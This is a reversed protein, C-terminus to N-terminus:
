APDKRQDSKVWVDMQPFAITINNERFKQDIEFRLDSKLVEVRFLSKTPFYLSFILASDGFNEFLVRPPPTSEVEPHNAAVELLVKEALRTDSGYAIGVELGNRAQSSNQTWNIVYDSTLLHNPITMVTDRRTIITTTRWGVKQVMGITGGLDVIDDTTITRDWLIIVGSVFDKFVDQLGLGIGVLLATGGALFVTPQIGVAYFSFVVALTWVLYNFLQGFAKRERPGITGQIMRRKLVRGTLFLVLRALALILLVEVVDVAYVEYSAASILKVELLDKLSQVQDM